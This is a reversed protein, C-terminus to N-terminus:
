SVQVEGFTGSILGMNAARYLGIAIGYATQVKETGGKCYAVATAKPGGTAIINDKGM